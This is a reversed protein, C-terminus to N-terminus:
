KTLCCHKYKRGSGCPCPDNRGPQGRPAAQAAAPATTQSMRAQQARENAVQQALRRLGPLAHDYFRKWGACLWSLNRPGHDGYMRHKLCEGSCIELHPCADCAQNWMSKRAGFSRYTESQAAQEWNMELVNGIRLDKEVFFDCPYIDGNHEVVFYQCCNRGMNCVNRAKDVLYAIISDFLRVSVRRTDKEIWCDFLECLFDGWQEGTITFPLPRGEPDFEVCPIYQHYYQGRELLYSYVERARGVNRDNVLTLINYEVGHRELREIGRLVDAHSGRGNITVRHHDHIQAPGDLSVGVLFHYRALHEAFADTILTANTQLGNAVVAGRRGHKQQFETVRRFFDVGMLTPEGGQWGFAYQPMPVSMFSSIMRELVEDSM